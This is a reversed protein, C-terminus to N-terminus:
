GSAVVLRRHGATIEPVVEGLRDGVGGGVEEMKKKNMGEVFEMVVEKKMLIVVM